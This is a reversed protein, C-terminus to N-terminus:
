NDSKLRWSPVTGLGRVGKKTKQSRKSSNLGTIKAAHGEIQIKLSFM